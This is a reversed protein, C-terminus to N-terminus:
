EERSDVTKKEWPTEGREIPWCRQSNDAIYWSDKPVGGGFGWGGFDVCGMKRCFSEEGSRPGTEESGEKVGCIKACTSCYLGGPPWVPTAHKPVYIALLPASAIASLLILALILATLAQTIRNCHTGPRPTNLSPLYSPHM